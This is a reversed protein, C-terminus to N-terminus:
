GANSFVHNKVHIGQTYTIIIKISAKDPVYSHSSIPLSNIKLSM